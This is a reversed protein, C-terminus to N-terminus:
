GNEEWTLVVMSWIQLEPLSLSAVLGRDTKEVRFPLPHPQGDGDPSAAYVQRPAKPVQVRIGIGRRPAPTKKGANWYDEANGTLNILQVVRRTKDERLVTWVRDPQACPSFAGNEFVYERNDGGSHTMSVDRLGPGYLLAGYRVLFDYYRRLRPLFAKRLTSHDPYYGQTLVGNEGGLLLHFAGNAALAATLLLAANEAEEERGKKRFPALYAALIVPRGKGFYKAWAILQQLQSYREYPEWVEIYVADTEEAVAETPWNCVNNFILGCAPNVQSLAARADKILAPFQEELRIERPEGDTKSFGTKPYGYTDMHIGDFGEARLAKAYEGIIHAHWPSDPAVNMITFVDIFRFPEGASTYLVSEPHAAAYEGSAAYVAGYAMARIGREHCKRIKRELVQLSHEKGMLDRYREQPPLYDDHRYVWDYFQALNIHFKLLFEVDDDSVDQPGFESLFGYRPATKWSAAVDFATSARDVQEGGEFLAADAGFGAFDASQAPLGIDVIKSEFGGLELEVQKEAVTRLLETVRVRLRLARRGPAPNCLEARLRVPEDKGFQAKLPFLDVFFKM